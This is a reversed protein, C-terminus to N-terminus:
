PCPPFKCGPPPGGKGGSVTTTETDSNNGPNPDPEAAEVEATNSLTGSGTPRVTITV